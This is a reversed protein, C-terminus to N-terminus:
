ARDTEEDFCVGTYVSTEAIVYLTKGVYRRGIDTGGECLSRLRERESTGSGVDATGGEGHEGCGCGCGPARSVRYGSTCGTWVGAAEGLAFAVRGSVPRGCGM